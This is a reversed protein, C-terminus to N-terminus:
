PIIHPWGPFSSGSIDECQTDAFDKVLSTRFPLPRDRRRLHQHLGPQVGVSAATLCTSSQSMRVVERPSAALDRRVSAFRRRTTLMAFFYLPRPM